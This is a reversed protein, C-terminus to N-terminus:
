QNEKKSDANSTDIYLRIAVAGAIFLCLCDKITLPDGTSISDLGLAANAVAICFGIIGRVWNGTKTM